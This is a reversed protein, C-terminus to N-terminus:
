AYVIHNKTHCADIAQLGLGFNTLIEISTGFGIFYQLFRNNDDKELFVRISPNLHALHELYPKLKAWDETYLGDSDQKVSLKTQYLPSKSPLMPLSVSTNGGTMANVVQKGSM